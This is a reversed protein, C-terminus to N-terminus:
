RYHVRGTTSGLAGANMALDRNVAARRRAAAMIEDAISRTRVPTPSERPGEPILTQQPPVHWVRMLTVLTTIGIVLGAVVALPKDFWSGYRWALAAFRYGVPVFIAFALTYFWNRLRPREYLGFVFIQFRSM